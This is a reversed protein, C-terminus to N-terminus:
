FNHTVLIIYQLNSPGMSVLTLGSVYSVTLLNTDCQLTKHLSHWLKPVASISLFLTGKVPFLLVWCNNKTRTFTNLHGFLSTLGESGRTKLLKRSTFLHQKIRSQTHYRPVSCNFNSFKSGLRIVLTFHIFNM